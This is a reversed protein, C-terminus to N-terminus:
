QQGPPIGVNTDIPLSVGESNSVPGRYKEILADSQGKLGDVALHFARRQVGAGLSKSNQGQAAILGDAAKQFLEESRELLHEKQAQGAKADFESLLLDAYDLRYLNLIVSSIEREQEFSIIDEFFSNAESFNNQKACGQVLERTSVTREVLGLDHQKKAVQLLLNRADRLAGLRAYQNALNVLGLHTAIPVASLFNSDAARQQYKKALSLKNASAAASATKVLQGVLETQDSKKSDMLALIELNTKVANEREGERTELEALKRLLILANTDDLAKHERCFQLLTRLLAMYVKPTKAFASRDLTSAIPFSREVASQNQFVKASKTYQLALLSEYAKTAFELDPEKGKRIIEALQNSLDRYTSTNFATFKESSVENTNELFVSKARQLSETSNLMLLNAVVTIHSQIREASFPQAKEAQQMVSDLNREMSALTKQERDKKIDALMKDAEANRGLAQLAKIRLQDVANVQVYRLRVTNEETDFNTGVLDCLVLAEQAKGEQLLYEALRQFLRKNLSNHTKLSLKYSEKMFQEVLDDPATRRALLYLHDNVQALKQMCRNVDESQNPISRGDSFEAPPFYRDPVPQTSLSSTQILKIIRKLCEDTENSATAVSPFRSLNSELQGCTFTIARLNTPDQHKSLWVQRQTEVEEIAARDDRAHLSELTKEFAQEVEIPQADENELTISLYKQYAIKAKDQDHMTKFIEGRLRYYRALRGLNKTHSQDAFQQALPIITYVTSKLDESAHFPLLSRVRHHLNILSIAVNLRDDGSLRPSLKSLKDTIPKVADLKENRIPEILAIIYSQAAQLYKGKETLTAAQDVLTASQPADTLGFRVSHFTMEAHSDSLLKSIQDDYNKDGSTYSEPSAARALDASSPSPPVENTSSSRTWTRVINREESPATYTTPGTFRMITGLGRYTFAENEVVYLNKPDPVPNAFCIQIQMSDTASSAFKMPELDVQSLARMMRSDLDSNGSSKVVRCSTIKGMANINLDIVTRKYESSVKVADFIRRIVDSRYAGMDSTALEFSYAGPLSVLALSLSLLLNGIKTKTIGIM